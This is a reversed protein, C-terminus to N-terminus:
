RLENDRIDGKLAEAAHIASEDQSQGLNLIIGKASDSIKMDTDEQFPEVASIVDTNHHPTRTLLAVKPTARCIHASENRWVVPENGGQM